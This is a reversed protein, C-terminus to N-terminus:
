KKKQYKSFDIEDVSGKLIILRIQSNMTERFRHQEKREFDMFTKLYQKQKKDKLYKM